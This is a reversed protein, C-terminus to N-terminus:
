AYEDGVLADVWAHRLVLNGIAEIRYLITM